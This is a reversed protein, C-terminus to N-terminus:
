SATRDEFEVGLLVDLAADYHEAQSGFLGLFGAFIAGNGLEALVVAYDASTDGAGVGEDWTLGFQGLVAEQGDLDVPATAVESRVIGDPTYLYSEAIFEAVTEVTVELDGAAPTVYRLDLTGIGLFGYRTGSADITRTDTEAFPSWDEGFSLFPGWADDPVPSTAGVSMVTLSGDAEDPPDAPATEAPAGTADDASGAPAATEGREPGDDAVLRLGTVVLVGIVLVAAAAAFLAAKSGRRSETVPPPGPARM